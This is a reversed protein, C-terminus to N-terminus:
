AKMGSLRSTFALGLIVNENEGETDALSIREAM